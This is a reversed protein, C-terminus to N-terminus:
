RGVGGGEVREVRVQMLKGLFSRRHVPCPGHEIVAARHEATGYGKHRAFGYEPYLEHLERMMADRAVKAVLSAAAISRVTGDGGIISRVPPGLPPADRGDVLVLSPTVGLADVAIRMARFTAQLINIQDIAEREVVGVSWAVAMERIASALREREPEPVRKSDRVGPLTFGEPLVVAAAVVPGALAGRGVEDVGALLTHGDAVLAREFSGDPHPSSAPM